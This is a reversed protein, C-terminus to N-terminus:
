QLVCRVKAIRDGQCIGENCQQQIHSMQSNSHISDVAIGNFRPDTYKSYKIQIGMPMSM